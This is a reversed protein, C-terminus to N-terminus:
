KPRREEWAKFLPCFDPFTHYAGSCQRHEGHLISISRALDYAEAGRERGAFLGPLDSRLDDLPGKRPGSSISRPGDGTM